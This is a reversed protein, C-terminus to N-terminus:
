KGLCAVVEACPYRKACDTKFNAPAKQCELFPDGPTSPDTSIQCASLRACLATLDGDKPLNAKPDEEWAFGAVPNRSTGPITQRCFVRPQSSRVVAKYMAALRNCTTGDACSAVLAYSSQEYETVALAIQGFVDPRYGSIVRFQQNALLAQRTISWPYDKGVSQPATALLVKPRACEDPITTIGDMPYREKVPSQPSATATGAGNTQGHDAIAQATSTTRSPATNDSEDTPKANSAGTNCATCAFWVATTTMLMPKGM